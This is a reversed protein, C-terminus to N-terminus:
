RALRELLAYVQVRSYFVVRDNEGLSIRKLGNRELKKLWTYSVGLEKLLEKQQIYPKLPEGQKMEQMTETIEKKIFSKLEQTASQSLLEM